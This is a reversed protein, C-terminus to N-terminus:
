GNRFVARASFLDRINRDILERRERFYRLQLKKVQRKLEQSSGELHVSRASLEALRSWGFVEYLTQGLWIWVLYELMGLVPSELLILGSRAGRRVPSTRFWETCPLARIVEVRQMTFSLARCYVISLTGIKGQLVRNLAHERVQSALARRDHDVVGGFARCPLGYDRAYAVGREGVVMLVGPARRYEQLAASMVQQNLGGVLGTDSTVAIVGMPGTGGIFPHTMRDLDFTGAIATIADFLAQNTRATRELAQFQQSAIAKITDLLGGLQGTFQIEQKLRAITAM